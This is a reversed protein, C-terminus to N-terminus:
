KGRYTLRHIAVWFFSTLLGCSLGMKMALHSGLPWMLAAGAAGGLVVILAYRAILPVGRSGTWAFALVLLASGGVTWILTVGAFGLATRFAAASIEGGGTWHLYLAFSVSALLAPALWVALGRVTDVPSASQTRRAM